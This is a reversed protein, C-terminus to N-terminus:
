DEIRRTKEYQCDQEVDYFFNQFSRWYYYWIRIFRRDLESQRAESAKPDM